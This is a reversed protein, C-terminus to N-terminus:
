GIMEIVKNYVKATAGKHENVFSKSKASMKGLLTNDTLLQTIIKNFDEKDKLMFSGGYEKLQNGEPFKSVKSGYMLVNGMSAAELINHLDNTFGGGVFAIDGYQYLNALMGINDILLIKNNALQKSDIRSFRVVGHEFRNEIAELHEESIDHPAIIVKLNDPFQNKIYDELIEEEQPWSSGLILLKNGGKFVEVDPISTSRESIQSVRDFRTDGCVGVNAFDHKLLISQSRENLCYIANIKRMISRQWAATKKFYVQSERFNCSFFMTAINRNQLENLFNFWFDYKVFVAIKPNVIDLFERANGKTDLPLYFVGKVHEYDKCYEYGSPSFFTVIIEHSTQEHLKEILPKAQEFEGLSSAHIWIPNNWKITNLQDQWKRRGEVWKVAKTNGLLGATIVGLGYSRIGINYLFKM